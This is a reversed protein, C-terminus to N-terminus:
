AARWEVLLKAGKSRNCPGCVPLLNGIAHRGNRSLPIVHDRETWSREQCYACLGGFRRVTRIWDRDTVVRADIRRERARRVASGLAAKARNNKYWRRSRARQLALAREPDAERKLRKTNRHQERHTRHHDRSREKIADSNERYYRQWREAEKLANQKRWLANAVAAAELCANCPPENAKYHRLRGARTGTASLGQQPGKVIPAECVLAYVPQQDKFPTLCRGKLEQKRHSRCLRSRGASRNCPPFECIKM